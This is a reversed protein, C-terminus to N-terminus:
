KTELDTPPWMKMAVYEIFSPSVRSRTGDRFEVLVRGDDGQPEVIVAGRKSGGAVRVMVQRGSAMGDQGGLTTRSALVAMRQKRATRLSRRWRAEADARLFRVRVRQIRWAAFTVATAAFATM